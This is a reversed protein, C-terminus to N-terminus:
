RNVEDCRGCPGMCGGCALETATYGGSPLLARGRRLLGRLAGGHRKVSERYADSVEQRRRCTACWESPPPDFYFRARSGTDDWKRAAKWCPEAQTAPVPELDANVGLPEARECFLGGREVRLRNRLSRVAYFDRVLEDSSRM